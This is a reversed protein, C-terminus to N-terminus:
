VETVKLTSEMQHSVGISVKEMAWFLTQVQENQHRKTSRGNKQKVEEVNAFCKGKLVKGDLSVFVFFINSPILDPLLLPHLVPTTGNKTLFQQVSLMTHAPASM